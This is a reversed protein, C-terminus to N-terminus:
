PSGGQEAGGTAALDIVSLGPPAAQQRGEIRSASVLTTGDPSFAPDSEIFQLSVAGSADPAAGAAVIRAQTGDSSTVVISNGHTFAIKAGNPAYVPDKSGGSQLRGGIAAYGEDDLLRRLGSGDTRVVWPELLFDAENRPPDLRHEQRFTDSAFKGLVEFAIHKGDPAFRPRFVTCTAKHTENIRPVRVIVTSELRQDDRGQLRGMRLEDCAAFVVTEGDPHIDPTRAAKVGVAEIAAIIGGTMPAIGLVNTFSQYPNQNTGGFIAHKGDPFVRPTGIYWNNRNRASIKANPDLRPQPLLLEAPADGLISMKWLGLVGGVKAVVVVTKDDIFTPDRVLSVKSQRMFVRRVGVRAPVDLSDAVYTAHDVVPPPGSATVQSPRTAPASASVKPSSKDGPATSEPCASVLTLAFGILTVNATRTWAQEM